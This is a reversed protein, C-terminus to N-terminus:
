HGTLWLLTLNPAAPLGSPHHNLRRSAPTTTAATWRTLLPGAVASPPQPQPGLGRLVHDVAGRGRSLGGVM